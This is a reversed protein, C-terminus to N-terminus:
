GFDGRHIAHVIHNTYFGVDEITIAGGVILHPEEGEKLGIIIIDDYKGKAEELVHNPDLWKHMNVINTM